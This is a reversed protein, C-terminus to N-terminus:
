LQLGKTTELEPGVTSLKENWTVVFLGVSPHGLRELYEAEVDGNAM